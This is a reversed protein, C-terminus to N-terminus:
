KRYYHSNYHPRGRIPRGPFGSQHNQHLPTKNTWLTGPSDWMKCLADGVSPEIEQGDRSTQVKNNENYPNVLHRTANFSINGRKIWEVPLVCNLNGGQEPLPEGSECKDGRLRAYGQFHGSSQLSFVLIVTKGAKFAEVLKKETNHTFAWVGRNVSADVTKLHGAKIVFYRTNSENARIGSTNQAMPSSPGGTSMKIKSQDEQNIFMMEVTVPIEWSTNESNGECCLHASLYNEHKGVRCKWSFGNWTFKQFTRYTGVPEFNDIIYCYSKQLIDSESRSFTSNCIYKLPEIDVVRVDNQEALESDELMHRLPESHACLFIKKAGIRQTQGSEQDQNTKTPSSDPYRHHNMFRSGSNEITSLFANGDEAMQNGDFEEWPRRVQPYCDINLPRPRQGVGQPQELGLAQEEASLVSVLTNVIAEDGPTWPKSSNKLRKFLLTHWKLRLQHVLSAAENDLRFVLWDDLKVIANHGEPVTDSENESDSDFVTSELSPHDSDEMADLPLRTPGAFIGVTLPSVVTCTRVHGLRGVRHLEEYVVWDTPLGRVTSTHTAAVSVRASKSVERLVSWPHFMVKHEKQTRLVNFERDVRALNPYLGGTLAAKVVAWNDSNTNVDRIDGAGRTKVLGCARLQGLVQARQSTILELSAGSVAHRECFYRESNSYRAHQWGQFVRLYVMHDSFSNNALKKRENLANRKLVPKTPMKFLDGHSLCCVITLIPDLCKLIIAYLLMKGFKPEISIELLHRGLDTLDEWADLADMTKLLQVANRTVLPSPPEIARALFDAIPSNPPALLKTHLCLEQLPERLIEPTQSPPMARYRRSSFLHYCVGPQSRGARGRRQRACAQSIWECKQTYVNTVANYSKERVKGSDIVYMVDDITISTEAINTSLIVKRQGTHVPQFIRKQDVVQMKSHLIFMALKGYENFKKENALIRDKVSVIHDYGPLFILVAGKKGSEHITSLIHIILDVDVQEEDFCREYVDILLKSEESLEVEVDPKCPEYEYYIMYVQLLEVVDQHGNETAWDLATREDSGAKINVKAGLSLLHEAMDVSGRAAAAMLATLGTDSHQYDVSINESLILQLLQTFAQETGSAWAQALCRDMDQKLYGELEVIEQSVEVSQQGLIPTATYTLSQQNSSGNVNLASIWNKLDLKNQKVREIDKKVKVMEKTMYGTKKLIDELFFEQVEYLRGPVTIIPCTNGSIVPCNTFYKSFMQTDLSSSMLVLKLGRYKALADRLVILMFDSLRDREHIEDIIVHTVTALLSDGCLLTRLLIGNTCYTLITNPSIRSELRIQYGVTKGLPEGREMAVRESVTVASIRRPMSCIIRCGRQTKESHDMIFQPVQTTKGCGTEGNIIVVSHSNIAQIITDKMPWITLTKRFQLLENNVGSPPVIPVGNHLRCQNKNTERLQNSVNTPWITLTKCFQLLENNVGSPPVIPVGNHLRCQNKNTERLSAEPPFSRDRETIPLLDQREKNTVPHSALLTLIAQRSPRVLPIVADAQIITSGDRKYVTVARNLGKGRSKSKLGLEKAKEHVYARECSEFASIYEFEKIDPNNVFRKLTLNILYQSEDPVIDYVKGDKKYRKQAM